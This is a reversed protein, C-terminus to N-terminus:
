LSELLLGNLCSMGPHFTSTLLPRDGGMFGVFTVKNVMIKVIRFGANAIYSWETTWQKAMATNQLM